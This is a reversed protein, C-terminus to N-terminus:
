SKTKGKRLDKVSSSRSKKSQTIENVQRQLNRSDEMAKAKEPNQKAWEGYKPCKANNAYHGKQGCTFCVIEATSGPRPLSRSPDTSDGSANDRRNRFREKKKRRERQTLDASGPDKLAYNGRSSGGTKGKKVKPHVLSEAKQAQELWHAVTKAYQGHLMSALQKKVEQDQLAADLTQVREAPTRPPHCDAEFSRMRAHLESVSEGPLQELGRLAQFAEQQRAQPAAIMDALFAKFSEWHIRCLPPDAKQAAEWADHASDRLSSAAVNVRVSHRNYTWPQARFVMEWSSTFTRWEDLSKGRYVDPTRTKYSKERDLEMKLEERRPEPLITDEFDFDMAGSLDADVRELGADESSTARQSALTLDATSDDDPTSVLPDARLMDADQQLALIRRNIADIASRKNRLREVEAALLAESARASELQADLALEDVPGDNNDRNNVPGRSPGNNVITNSSGEGNDNLPQDPVDDGDLTQNVGGTMVASSNNRVPFRRPM